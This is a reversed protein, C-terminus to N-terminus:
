GEDFLFNGNLTKYGTLTVEAHYGPDQLKFKFKFWVLYFVFIHGFKILGVEITRGEQLVVVFVVERDGRLVVAAFWLAKITYEVAMLM